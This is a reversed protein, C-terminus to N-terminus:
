KFDVSMPVALRYFDMGASRAIEKDDIYRLSFNM